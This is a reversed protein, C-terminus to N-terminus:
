QEEAAVTLDLTGLHSFRASVPVGPSLPIADTMGGTLVLSGASLSLGQTDLQGIAWALAEAPHGYVAAGTASDVIAGREELLVAELYLDLGEKSIGQPNLLFGGSSSNDAITDEIRFKFDAYRSDIVEIAGHVTAVARLAQAASVRGHLDEGMIFAIEPEARPHIYSDVRLPQFAPLEMADTLWSVTPQAIGMTIQKARSTLGLKIGIVTEGRAVRRALTERQIAYADQITMEPWSITLQPTATRSAESALLKDAAASIADADMATEKKV